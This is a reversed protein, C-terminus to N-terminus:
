RKMRELLEKRIDGFERSQEIEDEWGYVLEVLRDILEEDSL